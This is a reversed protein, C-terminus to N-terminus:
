PRTSTTFATIAAACFSRVKDADKHGPTAEVGSNVDVGWPRTALIGNAVSTPDLGGALVLQQDSWSPWLAWDFQKGTGGGLVSGSSDRAVTDLLFAAAQPHAGVVDGFVDGHVGGAPPLGVTKWYPKDFQSCFDAEEDGHFQLLDFDLQRLVGEVTEYSPNQFVAVRQTRAPLNQARAQADLQTSLESWWPLLEAPTVARKSREIFIFGLHTAGGDLAVGADALNTLGCIKV